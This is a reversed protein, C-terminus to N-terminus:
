GRATPAHPNRANLVDYIKAEYPLLRQGLDEVKVAIRKGSTTHVAEYVKGFTGSGLLSEIRWQGQLLRDFGEPLLLREAQRAPTEQEELESVDLASEAVSQECLEEAAAEGEVVLRLNSALFNSM